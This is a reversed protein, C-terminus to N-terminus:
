GMATDPCIISMLLKRNIQLVDFCDLKEQALARLGSSGIAEIQSYIRALVLSAPKTLIWVVDSLQCHGLVATSKAQFRMKLLLVFM